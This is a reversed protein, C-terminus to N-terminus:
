RRRKVNKCHRGTPKEDPSAPAPDSAVEFGKQLTLTFFNVHSRHAHLVSFGDLGLEVLDLGGMNQVTGTTGAAGIDVPALIVLFFGHSGVHDSGEVKGIAAEKSADVAGNKGGTTDIMVILSVGNTSGTKCFRVRGIELAAEVRFCFSMHFLHTDDAIYIRGTAM